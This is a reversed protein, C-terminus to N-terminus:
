GVARYVLLEGWLLGTAESLVAFLANGFNPLVYHALPILNSVDCCTQVLDTIDM